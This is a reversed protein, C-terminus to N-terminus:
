LKQIKFLHYPLAPPRLEVFNWEGNWHYSSGSVLDSVLYSEGNAIGMQNLPVQVWGNQANYEDLNVVCLIHNDLGDSKFYAIINDNDISCFQINNTRQLAKNEKRIKNIVSIHATLRNTVKWDHHQLQFKESDMYEEKGPLADSKMQEFIPGYIGANSSMTFAMFYRILHKTDSAGQLEYPNIDPTNPWFNARMYDKRDTKTLEELYQVFDAKSHRWTFYSYSQTFGAKALGEMIRPRSFAEALFIIDADYTKIQEILEKWFHFPKTHPNDVRFVRIGADVWYKVLGILENWLTEHDETEFHIPLIDQYKKPPNEAYQVTGDSRWKFWSPHEKVYPHDPAAQLAFDMAIEIRLKEAKKILSKFDELSGLEPHIDKHGGLRSGIAWPSGVDGKEATVTNNKGKRNKEGIPHIPPFYLTDFGMDAIRKLQKECDKFTGHKGEKNSASRPFFEYWTSFVGKERDVYVQLGQDFESKFNKEPFLRFLSEIEKGKLLDIAKQSQKKKIAALSETVLKKDAAKLKQKGLNELFVVGDALEVSVDVGADVKKVLGYHWTLAHDIWAEIKYDYHIQKDPTFVARWADNGLHMFPVEQWTKKDATKFLLHANLVDHGDAFMDATVEFPDNIVCKAYYRGSEINPRVNEIIVRSQPEM